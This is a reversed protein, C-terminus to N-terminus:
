WGPRYIGALARLAGADRRLGRIADRAARVAREAEEPALAEPAYAARVAAAVLADLHGDLSRASRALRDRHELV